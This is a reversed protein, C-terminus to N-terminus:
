RSSVENGRPTDIGRSETRSQRSQLRERVRERSDAFSRKQACPLLSLHQGFTPRQGAPMSLQTIAFGSIMLLTKHKGEFQFIPYQEDSDRCAADNPERDTSGEPGQILLSWASTPLTFRTARHRQAACQLRSSEETSDPHPATAPPETQRNGGREDPPARTVEGYSRKWMGSMSGSM